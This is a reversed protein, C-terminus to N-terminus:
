GDKTLEVVANYISSHVAPYGQIAYHSVGLWGWYDINQIRHQRSPEAAYINDSAWNWFHGGSVTHNICKQVNWQIYGRPPVITALLHVKTDHERDALANCLQVARMGGLSYGIVALNLGAARM